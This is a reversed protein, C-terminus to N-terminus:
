MNDIVLEKEKVTFYGRDVLRSIVYESSTYEANQISIESTTAGPRTGFDMVAVDDTKAPMGAWATQALFLLSVILGIIIKM